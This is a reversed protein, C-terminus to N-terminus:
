VEKKLEATLRRNEEYLMNGKTKLKVRDEALTEGPVILKAIRPYKKIADALLELVHDRDGDYITGNQMLGRINPGLYACFTESKM